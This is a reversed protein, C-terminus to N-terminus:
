RALSCVQLYVITNNKSACFDVEANKAKGESVTYDRRLLEM